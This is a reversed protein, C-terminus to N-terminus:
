LRSLHSERGALLQQAPLSPAANVWLGGGSQSATNFQIDSQHLIAQGQEIALGGGKQAHSGTISCQKLTLHANGTVLIGGGAALDAHGGNRLNLENGMVTAGNEIRLIRDGLGEAQIIASTCDSVMCIEWDDFGDITMNATINLDGTTADNVADPPITLHYSHDVSLYVTASVTQNARIIAGRLSCDNSADTCAQATADDDTRDVDFLPLAKGGEVSDPTSQAYAAAPPVAFLLLLALFMVLLPLSIPALFHTRTLM